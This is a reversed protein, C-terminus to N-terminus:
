RLAILATIVSTIVSVIVPVIVDGVFKGIKSRSYWDLFVELPYMMFDLVDAGTEKLKRM